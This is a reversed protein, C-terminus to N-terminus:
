QAIAGYPPIPPYPRAAEVIPPYPCLTGSPRWPLGGGGALACLKFCEQLFTPSSCCKWGQASISRFLSSKMFKWSKLPFSFILFISLVHFLSLKMLVSVKEGPASFSLIEKHNSLYIQHFEGFKTSNM